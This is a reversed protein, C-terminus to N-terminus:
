EEYTETEMVVLDFNMIGTVEDKKITLDYQNLLEPISGSKENYLFYLLRNFTDDLSGEKSQGYVLNCIMWTKFVPIEILEDDTTESTIFNGLENRLGTSMEELSKQINGVRLKITIPDLSLVEEVEDLDNEVKKSM